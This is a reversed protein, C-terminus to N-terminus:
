KKFGKSHILRGTFLDAGEFAPMMPKIHPGTAVVVKDFWESPQEEINVRWRGSDQDRSISTVVTSLRFHPRLHFHDVYAELYDQV